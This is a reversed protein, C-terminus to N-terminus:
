HEYSQDEAVVKDDPFMDPVAASWSLTAAHADLYLYNAVRVHRKSAIWPGFTNTGLWIDYDDQKSLPAEDLADADRESFALFNSLGIAQQFRTLTWSGYRRSRHSLLSNMLYSTRNALGDPQNRDDFTMEIRSTDGPCRYIREMASIQGMRARSEDTVSSGLYPLLKDEWYVEAFSNSAPANSLVDADYPHHLFFHNNWVQYYQHVALGIQRLNGLCEVRRGADRAANVAPLLLAVLAGIIAMAVLLEVLTFALRKETPAQNGDEVM